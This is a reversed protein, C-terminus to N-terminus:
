KFMIVSTRFLNDKVEFSASGNYKEAVVRISETGIGARNEQKSSMFVGDVVRPAVSFGNGVVVTIWGSNNECRVRVFRMNEAAGKAAEVANELANGLVICLDPTSVGCNDDISQFDFDTKVGSEAALASYYRIVSDVAANGCKREDLGDPLSNGYVTLYECLKEYERDSVLQRIASMHHRLDHCAIKTQAIQENIDHYQQKQIDIIRELQISRAAASSAVRANAYSGCWLLFAAYIAAFAILENICREISADLLVFVAFLTTVTFLSVSFAAFAPLRCVGPYRSVLSNGKKILVVAAATCAVAFPLAVAFYGIGFSGRYDDGFILRSVGISEAQLLAAGSAAICEIWYTKRFDLLLLHTKILSFAIILLVTFAICAARSNFAYSLASFAACGGALSVVILVTLEKKHEKVREPFPLLCLFVFLASGCLFGAADVFLSVLATM